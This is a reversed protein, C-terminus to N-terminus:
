KSGRGFRGKSVPGFIHLASKIINSRSSELFVQYKGILKYNIDSIKTFYGPESFPTPSNINTVVKAEVLILSIKRSATTNAM